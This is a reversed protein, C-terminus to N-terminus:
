EVTRTEISLLGGNMYSCLNSPEEFSVQCLENLVHDHLIVCYEPRLLDHHINISLDAIEQMVLGELVEASVPRRKFHQYRTM